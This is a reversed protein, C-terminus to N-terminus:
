TIPTVDIIKESLEEMLDRYKEDNLIELVKQNQTEMNNTIEINMKESWGMQTKAWFIAATIDGGNDIFARKYLWGRANLKAENWGKEIAYRVSENRRSYMIFTNTNIGLHIGMEKIPTGVKAMNEVKLLQEETLKTPAPPGKDLDVKITM